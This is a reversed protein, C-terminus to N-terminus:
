NTEANKYCKCEWAGWIENKISIKLFNNAHLTSVLVSLMTLKLTM